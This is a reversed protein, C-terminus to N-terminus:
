AWRFSVDKTAVSGDRKIWPLTTSLRNSCHEEAFYKLMRSQRVLEIDDALHSVLEQSLLVLVKARARSVTVNFRNLSHLFEEEDRVTDPDGVAYSALMVDREQGQFREVTDIAARIMAPDHGLPGFTRALGAVVMAQQARHPTVVGVIRTWFERADPPASPRPPQPQGDHGVEGDLGPILRRWLRRVLAVVLEAEFESSQASQGDRHLLCAVPREPDLLADLASEAEGSSAEEGGAGPLRLRLRLVPANAHLDPGYGAERFCDVVEQNSRYNRTLQTEQVGDRSKLFGYVSGVVDELGKPPEAQHLPEMQLPDGACVVSGGDAMATVAMCAHAVDLQSGEDIVVLDFLEEAYRDQNPHGARILNVVQGVTSGVVTLGGNGPNVLRGRLACVEASPAHRNLELVIDEPYGEPLTPAMGSSSLRFVEVEGPMVREAVARVGPMLNDIAAWTFATVLVRLSQGAGRARLLAAVITAVLTHSKGTGPPGWILHVRRELARRLADRQSQNLTVDNADLTAWVGPALPPNGQGALEGARWLFGSLPSSVSYRSPVVASHGTAAVVMASNVAEAPRGLKRLVKALPRTFFDAHIPDLVVNTSLDLAGAAELADLIGPKLRTEELVVLRRDRDIRLPVVALADSMRWRPERSQPNVPIGHEEAIPRFGRDLYGPRDVPVIAFGMEGERAAFDASSDALRYVRRGAVPVIGLAAFAEQAEVGTLRATLRASKGRAEREHVPMGRIDAKERAQMAENLRAFTLLLHGDLSMGREIAAPGVGWSPAAISAKALVERLDQQVRRVVLELAIHQAKVARTLRNLVEEWGPKRQWLEIARESPIQDSLRDEFMPHVNLFADVQEDTNNDPHYVRALGLLSYHYPIPAGVAARIVNEAVTVPSARSAMDPNQLLTEPPFMWALSKLGDLQVLYHLHRGIVRCLHDYTLQDWVYVQYRCPEGHHEHWQRVAPENLIANLHRLFDRVARRETELARNESVAVRTEFRRRQCGEPVGPDRAWWSASVGLSLTLASSIEFSATVFVRLNTFAPMSASAGSEPATGAKGDRLSAARYAIVSRATRLSQHRDFVEDQHDLTAVDSVSGHGAETLVEVAGRSIRPIRSLHGGGGAGSPWCHDPHQTTKLEGTHADKRFWPYGLYDCNRCSTSVHAALDRWDTELVEPLVDRIVGDVRFRFVEFVTIELEKQWAALKDEFSLVAGKQDAEQVLRALPSREHSGPWIAADPVVVFRDSWPKPGDESPYFVDELWGALAMTYYTVEAFYGAGPESTMKIDVVRLQPRPDGAPLAELKGSPLVKSPYTLPPLVQILDPIADAIRLGHSQQLARLGSAEAYAGGEGTDPHELEFRPQVLFDGPKAGPLMDPHALDVEEHVFRPVGDVVKTAGIGRVRHGFHQRLESLKEAEWDKGAEAVDAFGPRQPQSPPMGFAAVEAGDGKSLHLRLQRKCDTRLFQSLASKSFKPM